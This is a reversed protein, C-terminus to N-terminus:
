SVSEEVSEAKIAPETVLVSEKKRKRFIVWLWVGGIALCVLAIALTALNVHIASFFAWLGILIMPIGIPAMWWKSHEVKAIADAVKRLTPVSIRDPVILGWIIANVWTFGLIGGLVFVFWDPNNQFLNQIFPVM